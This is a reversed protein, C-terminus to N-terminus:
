IVVFIYVFSDVTILTSNFHNGFNGLKRSSYRPWNPEPAKCKKIIATAFKVPPWACERTAENFWSLPVVEVTKGGEDTMEVVCWKSQPKVLVLSM